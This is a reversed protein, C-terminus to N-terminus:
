FPSAHEDVWGVLRRPLTDLVEPLGSLGVHPHSWQGILIGTRPDKIEALVQAHDQSPILGVRVNIELVEPPTLTQQYWSSDM